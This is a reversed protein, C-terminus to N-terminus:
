HFAVNYHPRGQRFINRLSIAIRFATYLNMGNVKVYTKVTSWTYKSALTTDLMTEDGNWVQWSETINFRQMREIVQMYWTNMVDRGVHVRAAEIRLAKRFLDYIFPIIGIGYDSCHKKCESQYPFKKELDVERYCHCGKLKRQKTNRPMVLRKFLKEFCRVLFAHSRIHLTRTVSPRRLRNM